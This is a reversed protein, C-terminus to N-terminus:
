TKYTAGFDRTISYQHNNKLNGIFLSRSLFIFFGLTPYIKLGDPRWKPDEFFEKFAQVDREWGVNPLDPMMHSIVKFGVEKAQYYLIIHSIKLTKKEDLYFSHPFVRQQKSYVMKSGPFKKRKAM